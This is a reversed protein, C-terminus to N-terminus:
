KPDVPVQGRAVEDGPALGDERPAVDDALDLGDAAHAEDGDLGGLDFVGQVLPYETVLRGRTGDALEVEGWDHVAAPESGDAVEDRFGGCVM